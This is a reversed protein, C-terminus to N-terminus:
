ADKITAKRMSFSQQPELSKKRMNRFNKIIPGFQGSELPEVWHMTALKESKTASTIKRNNPMKQGLNVIKCLSYGM